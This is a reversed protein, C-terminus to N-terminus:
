IVKGQNISFSSHFRHLRPRFFVVKEFNLTFPLLFPIFRANEAVVPVIGLPNWEAYICRRRIRRALQMHTVDQVPCVKVHNGTVLPHLPKVHQKRLAPVALNLCLFGLQFVFYCECFPNAKQCIGHYTYQKPQFLVNGHHLFPDEPQTAADVPGSLISGDVRSQRRVWSLKM